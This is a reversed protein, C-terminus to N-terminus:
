SENLALGFVFRLASSRRFDNSAADTYHIARGTSQEMNQVPNFEGAHVPISKDAHVAHQGITLSPGACVSLTCVNHRWQLHSWLFAIDSAPSHTSSLFNSGLKCSLTQRMNLM